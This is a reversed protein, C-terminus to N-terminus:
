KIKVEHTENWEAIVDDQLKQLEEDTMEPWEQWENFGMVVYNCGYTTIGSTVPPLPPPEPKKAFAALPSIALAALSKFFTRTTM